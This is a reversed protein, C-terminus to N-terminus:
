IIHVVDNLLFILSLDFFASYFFSLRPLHFLM